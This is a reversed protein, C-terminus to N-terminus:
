EYYKSIVQQFFSYGEHPVGAVTENQIIYYYLNIVQYYEASLGPKEILFSFIHAFNERETNSKLKGQALTEWL